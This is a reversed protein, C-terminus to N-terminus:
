EMADVLRNIKIKIKMIRNLKRLKKSKWMWRTKMMSGSRSMRVKERGKCGV